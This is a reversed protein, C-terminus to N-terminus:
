GGRSEHRARARHRAVPGLCELASRPWRSSREALEPQLVLTSSPLSRAANGELRPLGGGCGCWAGLDLVVDGENVWQHLMSFEPEASTFQNTRIQRGHLYRRLM